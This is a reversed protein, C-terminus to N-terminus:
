IKEQLLNEESEGSKIQYHQIFQQNIYIDATFIDNKLDINEVEIINKGSTVRTDKINLSCSSLFIVALMVLTLIIVININKENEM